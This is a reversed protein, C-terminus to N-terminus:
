KKLKNEIFNSYSAIMDISDDLDILFNGTLRHLLEIYYYGLM